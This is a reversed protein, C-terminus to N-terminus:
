LQELPEAASRQLRVCLGAGDSIFNVRMFDRQADGPVVESGPKSLKPLGLQCSFPLASKLNGGVINALERVSDSLQLPSVETERALHFMARAVLEALTQEIELILTGQWEGSTCISVQMGHDVGCWGADSTAAIPTQPIAAWVERVIREIHERIELLERM